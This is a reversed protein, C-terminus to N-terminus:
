RVSRIPRLAVAALLVIVIGVAFLGTYGGTALVLAGGLAPAVAQPIANALNLVGLDKAAAGDADPLVQTMLVTDCAQYLGFGVGFFVALAVVAGFTPRVLPLALGIAMFGSAAYIFPKRRQFRDSLLGGVMIAVIAGLVTAVSLLGIRSNAEALPLHIFDTLIYLNFTFVAYYGIVFLFRAVFAWAFDPHRRPDVWFAAPRPGDVPSRTRDPNVLVFLVVGVLVALGFATYALPLNGAVQGAVAVAIAAGAMFGSGIAASAVGRRQVPIRDPMVASAPALIANFSIQVGVWCVTVAAVTDLHGLVALTLTAAVAGGLMWPARRGLRGRTRDSLTGIVPQVVIAVAFSVSTTFALNAVKHPQDIASLQNPLLVATLSSFVGQVVFILIGMWPVLRRPPPAVAASTHHM